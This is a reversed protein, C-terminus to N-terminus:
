YNDNPAGRFYYTVNDVAINQKYIVGTTSSTAINNFNTETRIENMNALIKDTFSETFEVKINGIFEKGTNHNQEAGTDKLELTFHYDFTTNNDIIKTETLIEQKGTKGELYGTSLINNNNDKITYVLENAGKLCENVFDEYTSNDCKKFGNKDIDIIISYTVTKVRGPKSPTVTISFDKNVSEGPYIGDANLASNGAAYEVKLLEEPAKSTNQEGSGQVGIGIMFYAYSIGTTFIAILLLLIFLKSNRKM